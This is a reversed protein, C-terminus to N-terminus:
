GVAKRCSALLETAFESPKPEAMAAVIRHREGTRMTPWSPVAAVVEATEPTPHDANAVWWKCAANMELLAQIDLDSLEGNDWQIDNFAEGPPLPVQGALERAREAAEGGPEHVNSTARAPLTATALETAQEAAPQDSATAPTVGGGGVAIVAALLTALGGGGILVRLREPSM